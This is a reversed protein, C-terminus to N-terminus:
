DKLDQKIYSKRRSYQLFCEDLNRFSGYNLSKESMESKFDKVGSTISM